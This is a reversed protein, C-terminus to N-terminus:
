ASSNSRGKHQTPASVRSAATTPFVRFRTACFSPLLRLVCLFSLSVSSSNFHCKQFASIPVSRVERNVALPVPLAESRPVPAFGLGLFFVFYGLRLLPLEPHAFGGPGPCWESLGGVSEHGGVHYLNPRFGLFSLLVLQFRQLCEESPFGEPHDCCVIDAVVLSVSVCLLARWSGDIVLDSEEPPDHFSAPDPMANSTIELKELDVLPNSPSEGFLM